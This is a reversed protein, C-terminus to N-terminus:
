RTFSRVLSRAFSRVLSRAFSRVLSRAFSRVLSRAFSRVLSRAFSRVLSRAFSRVLSRAFSRVLSRAFSRVFPRVFSRIFKSLGQPRYTAHDQRLSYPGTEGLTKFQELVTSFFHSLRLSYVTSLNLRVLLFFIEAFFGALFEVFFFWM